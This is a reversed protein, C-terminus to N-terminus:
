DTSTNKDQAAGFASELGESLGEMGGTLKRILNGLEAPTIATRTWIADLAEAQKGMSLNTAAEVAEADKPDDGAGVVILAVAFDPGKLILQEVDLANSAGFMAFLPKKYDEILSGVAHLSLGKLKIVQGAVELDYYDTRLNKLSM